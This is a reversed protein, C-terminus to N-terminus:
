DILSCNTLIKPDNKSVTVQLLTQFLGGILVHLHYLCSDSCTHKTKQNSNTIKASRGKLSLCWEFEPQIQFRNSGTEPLTLYCLDFM